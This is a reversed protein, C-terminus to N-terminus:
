STSVKKAYDAIAESLRGLVGIFGDFNIKQQNARVVKKSFISKGYNKTTDFSDDGPHFTKGDLIEARVEDGFLDEITVHGSSGKIKPLAVLYLNDILHYFAESDNVRRGIKDKVVSFLKRSGEDHDVLIIVPFKKGNSKFPRLKSKYEIILQKLDGTGGSFQLLDMNTKSHNFFDVAFDFRGDSEGGLMPFSASLSKIACKLYVSDTKGECLIMPKSLAHFNTFLIFNEYLKHISTPEKWKEKRDRQDHHKKVNYIHSLIGRLQNVTGPQREGDRMEKGLYFQGTRFLANCM